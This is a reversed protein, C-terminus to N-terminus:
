FAGMILECVLATGAAGAAVVLLSKKFYALVIACVAAAIGSALHGAATFISPFTMASLVAYPVYHLFSRFWRNTIKKRFFVLPVARILYTVGAMVIVAGAVYGANSM